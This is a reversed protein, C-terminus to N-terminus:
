AIGNRYVSLIWLSLFLYPEGDFLDYTSRDLKKEFVDNFILSYTTSMHYSVLCLM